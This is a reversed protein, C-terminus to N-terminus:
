KRNATPGTVEQPKKRFPNQDEQTQFKKYIFCLKVRKEGSAHEQPALVEQTHMIKPSYQVQELNNINRKTHPSWVMSAYELLSHVLCYLAIEKNKSTRAHETFSM